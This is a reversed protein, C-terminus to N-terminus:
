QKTLIIRSRTDCYGNCEFFNSMLTTVYICLLLTKTLIKVTKHVQIKVKFIEWLHCLEYMCLLCLNTSQSM